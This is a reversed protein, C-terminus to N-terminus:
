DMMQRWQVRVERPSAFLQHLDGRGQALVADGHEAAHSARALRLRRALRGTLLAHKHTALWIGAERYILQQFKSFLDPALTSRDNM